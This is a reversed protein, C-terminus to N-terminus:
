TNGRGELAQFITLTAVRTFSGTILFHPAGFRGVVGQRPVPLARVRMGAKGTSAKGLGTQPRMPRAWLYLNESVWLASRGGSGRRTWGVLLSASRACSRPCLAPLLFGYRHARGMRGWVAALAQFRTILFHPIGFCQWPRGNRRESCQSRSSFISSQVRCAASKQLARAGM